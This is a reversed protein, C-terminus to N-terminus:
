HLVKGLFAWYRFTFNPARLAIAIMCHFVVVVLAGASVADGALAVTCGLADKAVM